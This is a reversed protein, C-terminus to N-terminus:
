QFWPLESELNKFIDKLDVGAPALVVGGHVQRAIKGMLREQEADSGDFKVKKVRDAGLLGLDEELTGKEQALIVLRHGNICVHAPRKGTYPVFFTEM